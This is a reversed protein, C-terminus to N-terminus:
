SHFTPILRGNVRSDSLELQTAEKSVSPQPPRSGRVAISHTGYKQIHAYTQTPPTRIVIYMVHM